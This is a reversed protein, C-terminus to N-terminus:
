RKSSRIFFVKQITNEDVKYAKRFEEKITAIWDGAVVKNVGALGLAKIKDKVEEDIENYERWRGVLKERRDLQLELETAEERTLVTAGPGFVLKPLCTDLFECESCYEPDSIKQKKSPPTTTQIMKNVRAAKQLMEKVSKQMGADMVFEIIKLQGSQKNKMMLWYKDVGQLHMYLAIQKWWKRLWIKSSKAIDEPRKVADFTWPSCSKVEVRVKEKLGPKWILLDRRGSIQYRKDVMQEEEGSVEFGADQLDRKVMRAQDHGESFIMALDAGIKRRNKPPVTRNYYAYAECDHALVTPWNSTAMSGKGREGAKYKEYASVVMKPTLAKPKSM